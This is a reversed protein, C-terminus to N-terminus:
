PQGEVLVAAVTDTTGEALRVEVKAGPQIDSAAGENLKSVSPNKGFTLSVRQGGAAELTVGKDTIDVVHGAIVTRSDGNELEGFGTFGAQSLGAFVSPQEYAPAETQYVYFPAEDPKLSSGVFYSVAAIAVAAALWAGFKVERRRM